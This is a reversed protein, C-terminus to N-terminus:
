KIFAVPSSALFIMRLMGLNLIARFTFIGLVTTKTGESILTGFAIEKFQKLKAGRLLTYGNAKLEDGHSSKVNSGSPLRNCLLPKTSIVSFSIIRSSTKVKSSNISHIFAPSSSTSSSCNPCSSASARANRRLNLQFVSM